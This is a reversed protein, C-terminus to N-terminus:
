LVSQFRKGRNRPAVIEIDHHNALDNAAVADDLLEALTAHADDIPTLKFIGHAPSQARPDLHLLM